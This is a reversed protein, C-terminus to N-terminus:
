IPSFCDCCTWSGSIIYLQCGPYKRHCRAYTGPEKCHYPLSFQNKLFTLLPVWFLLLYLFWLSKLPHPSHSIKMKIKDSKAIIIVAM